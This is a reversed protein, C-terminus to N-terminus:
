AKRRKQKQSNPFGCGIEVHLRESEGTAFECGFCKVVPIRAQDRRKPCEVYYRPDDKTEGDKSPGM